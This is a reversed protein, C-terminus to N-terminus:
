QSIRGQGSTRQDIPIALLGTIVRPTGAKLYISAAHLAGTCHAGEHSRGLLPAQALCRFARFFYWRLFPDCASTAPLNVAKFGGGGISMRERQGAGTVDLGSIM